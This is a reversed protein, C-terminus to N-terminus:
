APEGGHRGAMVLHTWCLIFSVCLVPTVVIAGFYRDEFFPFIVDMSQLGAGIWLLVLLVLHPPSTTVIGARVMFLGIAAMMAAEYYWLYPASLLIAILLLAAKADFGIRGSRWFLFVSLAALATMGGQLVLATSTSLGMLTALSFPSVTLVLDNVLLVMRDAHEAMVEALRPWYELGVVLTPLVALAIATGTAAFLTRWQGAALLAFPIMLGLQPKLTLCGILVGAVVARGSRLAALAALLVSLWVLSNQGIILTPLYAPALTMAAWVPKVGGVFPRSALAIALISLVTMALFAYAYPMVGFPAVLLLYGPPYLWPMWDETVTNYEATLTAHDLAALPSGALFLRAAAWFVRFDSGLTRVGDQSTVIFATAVVVICFFLTLSTGLVVVLSARNGAFGQLRADAALTSQTGQM